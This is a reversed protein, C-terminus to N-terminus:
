SKPVYYIRLSSGDPLQPESKLSITCRLNPPVAEVPNGQNPTNGTLIYANEGHKDAWNAVIADGISLESKIVKGKSCNVEFRIMTESPLTKGKPVCLVFDAVEAEPMTFQGIAFAAVNPIVAMEVFLNRRGARYLIYVLLAAAITWLLISASTRRM